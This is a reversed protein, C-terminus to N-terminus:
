SHTVVQVQVHAAVAVREVGTLLTVNGATTTNVAEVLTEADWAAFLRGSLSPKRKPHSSFGLRPQTKEHRDGARCRAYPREQRDAPPM